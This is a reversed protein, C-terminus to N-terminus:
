LWAPVGGAGARRHGGIAKGGKTYSEENKGGHM